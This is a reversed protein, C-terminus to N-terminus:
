LYLNLHLRRQMALGLATVKTKTSLVTDWKLDKKIEERLKNKGM